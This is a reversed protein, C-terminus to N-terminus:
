AAGVLRIHPVPWVNRATRTGIIQLANVICIYYILAKQAKLRYIISLNHDLYAWRHGVRVPRFM